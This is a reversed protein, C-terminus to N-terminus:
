GRSGVGASSRAETRLRQPSYKFPYQITNWGVLPKGVVKELFHLHRLLAMPTNPSTAEGQADTDRVQGPWM